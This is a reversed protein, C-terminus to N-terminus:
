SDAVFAEPDGLLADATDAGAEPALVIWPAGKCTEALTKAVTGDVQFAHMVIRGPQDADRGVVDVRHDAVVDENGYAGGYGAWVAKTLYCSGLPLSLAVLLVRM